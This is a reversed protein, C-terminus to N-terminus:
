RNFSYPVACCTFQQSDDVRSAGMIGADSYTLQSATAVTQKRSRSQPLRSEIM